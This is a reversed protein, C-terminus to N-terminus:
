LAVLGAVAEELAEPAVELPVYALDLARAAFAANQMRPSLSGAVPRGLLGILRTGGGIVPLRACGQVRQLRRPEAHLLPAEQGAQARLLPLEGKRPARRGAALRPRPERDADASPRRPWRAREHQVPERDRAVVPSDVGHAPHAP